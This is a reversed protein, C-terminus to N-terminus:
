SGQRLAHNVTEGRLIRYRILPMRVGGRCRGSAVVNVIAMARADKGVATYKSNIAAVPLGAPQAEQILVPGSAKDEVFLGMFGLNANHQKVLDVGRQIIAPFLTKLIAADVIASIRGLRPIVLNPAGPNVWKRFDSIRCM